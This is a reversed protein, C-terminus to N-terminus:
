QAHKQSGERKKGGQLAKEWKGYGAMQSKKGGVEGSKKCRGQGQASSTREVEVDDGKGRGMGVVPRSGGGGTEKRNRVQMKRGSEIRSEGEWDWSLGERGM